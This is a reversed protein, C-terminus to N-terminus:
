RPATLAVNVVNALPFPWGVVHVLVMAIGFSTRFHLTSIVSHVLGHVFDIRGCLHRIKLESTWPTYISVKSVIAHAGLVAVVYPM